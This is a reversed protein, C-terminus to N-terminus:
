LSPVTTKLHSQAKLDPRSVKDPTSYVNIETVTKNRM